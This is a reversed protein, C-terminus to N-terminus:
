SRTGPAVLFGATRLRRLLPYHNELLAQADDTRQSSVAVIADIVSVPKRFQRLLRATEADVVKALHRSGPRSIAYDTASANLRRQIDSPFRRVSTLEVDDALVLQQTVTDRAGVTTTM